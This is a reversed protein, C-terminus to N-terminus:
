ASLGATVIKLFIADPVNALFADLIYKQREVEANRRAIEATRDRIREVLLAGQLASSIQSRLLSYVAGKRPGMELTMFGIQQDRFYLAEVLLTSRRDQPLLHPPFFHRSRFRCAPSTVDRQGQEDYALLLQSWEPAPQPYAHPQPDEYLALACSQIGLAPLGQALVEKLGQMDFTTILSKGFDQIVETHQEVDFASQARLRGQAEGIVIRAQNWLHEAQTRESSSAEYYPFLAQQLSTIVNHM